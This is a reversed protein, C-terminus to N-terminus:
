KTPTCVKQAAILERIEVRTVYGQLALTAVIGIACMCMAFKIDKLEKLIADM